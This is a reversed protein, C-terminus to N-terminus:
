ALADRVAKIVRDQSAKRQDITLISRMFLRTGGIAIIALGFYIFPVSRPISANLLFGFFALALVSFSVGIFVTTLLQTGAFRIVARYLGLRVFLVVTVLTTLAISTAVRSEPVYLEDLRLCFSLWLTIPMTVLDAGLSIARKTNRSFNVITKIM